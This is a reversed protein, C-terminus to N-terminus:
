ALRDNGEGMTVDSQFVLFLKNVYAPADESQQLVAALSSQQDEVDDVGDGKLCRELTIWITDNEEASILSRGVEYLRRNIAESSLAECDIGTLEWACLLSNDHGYFVHSEAERHSVNVFKSLDESIHM